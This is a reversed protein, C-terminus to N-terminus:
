AHFAGLLVIALSLLLMLLATRALLATVPAGM